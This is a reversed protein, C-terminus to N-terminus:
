RKRPQGALDVCGRNSTAWQGNRRRLLSEYDTSSCRFRPTEVFQGGKSITLTGTIVALRMLIPELTFRTTGRSEVTSNTLM